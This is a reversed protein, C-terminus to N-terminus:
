QESLYRRLNSSLDAPGDASGAERLVSEILRASRRQSGSLSKKAETLDVGIRVAARSKQQEQRRAKKAPIGM